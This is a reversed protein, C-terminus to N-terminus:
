DELLGLLALEKMYRSAQKGAKNKQKLCPLVLYGWNDQSRGQSGRGWSQLGGQQKTALASCKGV